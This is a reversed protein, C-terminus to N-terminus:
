SNIFFENSDSKFSKQFSPQGDNYYSEHSM